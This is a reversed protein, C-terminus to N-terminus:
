IPDVGISMALMWQGLVRTQISHGQILLMEGADHGFCTQLIKYTCQVYMCNCLVYMSAYYCM